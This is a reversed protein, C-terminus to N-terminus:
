AIFMWQSDKGTGGVLKVRGDQVLKQLHLNVSHAAPEWLSQPYDKYITSVITWTTWTQDDSLSHSSSPPSRIVNVIQEERQVRHHLYMAVHAPGDKVVPGHGPYVVAFQGEETKGKNYETLRRLSAMYDALSEFVASGQGLVTDATFLARDIPLYLCLSDPTHGPTHIVHLSSSESDSLTIPLADGDSLSHIPNGSPEAIYTGAVLSTTIEQLKSDPTSLPIKHIRPGTFPHETAGERDKWLRTLLSLVSPLGGCHDHHRHTIIICSIDPENPQSPANLNTTTLAEQLLPIYEDKGEGTDVLIYPNRQGVLYTNTGQLTFKGPNQGLIRVVSQSIRTISPLVELAEM